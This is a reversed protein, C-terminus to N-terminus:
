GRGAIDPRRRVLDRLQDERGLARLREIMVAPPCYLDPGIQMMPQFPDRVSGPGTCYRSWWEDLLGEMERCKVPNAEALNTQEYPDTTLDFLYVPDYPYLGSHLTRILLWDGQRVARQFSYIGCGRVLYDRGTFPTGRLAPAFSIGDWHPPIELGLLDLVTPGLDLQYTLGAIRVGKALGPWQIILPVRTVGETANGHEFYMGLEGIAEGHDASVIVATEERVGLGELAELLQSIARDVYAIGGDYGSVMQNFHELTRLEDPMNPNRSRWDTVRGSWWDRATRPGYYREYDRELAAADPYPPLAQEAMRRIFATPANYPTHVDWYNVHLFWNDDAGHAKLWALALANVEDASEPGGPLKNGYFETFGASFWWALHRQAFGSFCVTNWGAKQLVRMWMPQTPDHVHGNGPYRFQQGPGEHAVVGNRIGLRGSFLAARSPLCPADSTYCGILLAGDRALADITPSTPRVYGYCSLHDPRCSDIDLYLIRM